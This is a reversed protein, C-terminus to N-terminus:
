NSSTSPSSRLKRQVLDAVTQVNAFQAGSMEDIEFQFDPFRPKLSKELKVALLILDLSAIEAGEQFRIKNEELCREITQIIENRDM